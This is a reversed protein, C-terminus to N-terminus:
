HRHVANAEARHGAPRVEELVEGVVGGVGRGQGVQDVVERSLM